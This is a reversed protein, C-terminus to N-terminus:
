EMKWDINEFLFEGEKGVPWLEVAVNIAGTEFSVAYFINFILLLLFPGPMVMIAPQPWNKTSNGWGILHSADRLNKKM